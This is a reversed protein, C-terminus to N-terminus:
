AGRRRREIDRARARLPVGPMPDPARMKARVTSKRRSTSCSWSFRPNLLEDSVVFREIEHGVYVPLHGQPVGGG